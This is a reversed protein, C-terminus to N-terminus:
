ETHEDNIIFMNKIRSEVQTPRLLDSTFFDFDITKCTQECTKHKRSMNSCGNKRGTEICTRSAAILSHFLYLCSFPLYKRHFSVCFGADYNDDVNNVRFLLQLDSYSSAQHCPFEASEREKEKEGPTLKSASFKLKLYRENHEHKCIILHLRLSCPFKNEGTQLPAEGM